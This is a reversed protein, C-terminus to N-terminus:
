RGRDEHDGAGRAPGLKQVWMGFTRRRVGAILAREESTLSRNEDRGVEVIAHVTEYLARVAGDVEFAGRDLSYYERLAETERIFRDEPVQICPDDHNFLVQDILDNRVEFGGTRADLAYACVGGDPTAVLKVPTDEWIFYQPMSLTM